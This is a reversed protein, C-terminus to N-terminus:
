VGFIEIVGAKVAENIERLGASIDRYGQPVLELSM